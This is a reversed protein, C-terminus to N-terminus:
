AAPNVAYTCAKTIMQDTLPYGGLVFGVKFLGYGNVFLKGTNITGLGLVVFGQPDITTEVQGSIDWTGIQTGEKIVLLGYLRKAAFDFTMEMDGFPTKIENMSLSKSSAAIEGFVQFYMTPPAAVVTSSSNDYYKGHFRFTNWDNGTVWMGNSDNQSSLTIKPGSGGGTSTLYVNDGPTLYVRSIESTGFVLKSPIPNFKGPEECSGLITFKGSKTDIIPAKTNDGKFDVYGPAEFQIKLPELNANLAGPTGTFNISMSMVPFRPVAIKAEGSLNFTNSGSVIQKPIFTIKSNGFMNPIGDVTGMSLINENGFSILQIYDLPIPVKIYPDMGTIVAAPKSGNKGIVFRWHAGLDSGCKEDFVLDSEPSIESLNLVGGGLTLKNLDFDELVFFDNRLNFKKAPIDVVGTKILCNNSILGGETPDVKWDKIELKWNQLDLLIPESGKAQYVKNNDIVLDPVHFKVKSLKMSPSAGTVDVSLHIKGDIDIYSEQPIATANFGIFSFGLPEGAKNSLNYLDLALSKKSKIASIKTELNKGSKKLGLYFNGTKDFNLYTSPFDFSNDVISAYGSLVGGDTESKSIKLDENFFPINSGKINVNYREMYKMKLASVADLYQSEKVPFGLGNKISFEADVIRVKFNPDLWQFRTQGKTLDVLGTVKYNGNGMKTVTEVSLPFGYIESIKGDGLKKLEMNVTTSSSSLTVEKMDGNVTFSTDLTAYIRTKNSMKPIGTLSYNGSADTRTELNNLAPKGNGITGAFSNMDIYVKANKVPAGDLTIKGNIELGRKITIQYHVPDRTEKNSINVIEPIFGNETVGEFLVTYKTSSVNEFPPIEISQAYSNNIASKEEDNNITARINNKKYGGNPMPLANGNADKFKLDFVIRHKRRYVTVKKLDFSDKSIYCFITTDFYGVDKPVIKIHHITNSSIPVSFDGGIQMATYTAYMGTGQKKYVTKVNNEFVTSDDRIIYAAVPNGNEDVVTGKIKGKPVLSTPHNISKGELDIPGGNFFATKYGKAETFGYYKTGNDWYAIEGMATFGFNRIEWYGSKDITKTHFAKTGMVVTIKGAIGKESSKDKMRGSIRSLTLNVSAEYSEFPIIIPEFSPGDNQPDPSIQLFYKGGQLLIKKNEFSVFSKGEKDDFGLDLTEDM